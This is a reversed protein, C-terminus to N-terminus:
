DDLNDDEGVEPDPDFASVAPGEFSCDGSQYTANALISEGTLTPQTHDIDSAYDFSLGRIMELVPLPEDTYQVNYANGAELGIEDGCATNGDNLFELHTLSEMSREGDFEAHAMDEGQLILGGGQQHFETIADFSSADDMPSDPNQFWTVDFDEIDEFSIGDEPEEIVEVDEYGVLPGRDSRLNDVLFQRDEPFEGAINDDIVVAIDTEEADDTPNVWALSNQVLWPIDGGEQAGTLALLMTVSRGPDDEECTVGSYVPFQLGDRSQVQEGEQDSLADEMRNGDGDLDYVDVRFAYDGQEDVTVNACSEWSGNTRDTSAESIDGSLEGADTSSWAFELPDGDPDSATACVQVEAPCSSVFKQYELNELEPPHNISSVVDLGGREVGECQNILLIETTQGDEVSVRDRHASECDASAEGNDQLPTTQVNYCGADVLFFADAFLHQAGDAGVPTNRFREIGGPLMMDELDRTQSEQFGTEDGTNCNVGQVDFQMRAVDTDGLTDSTLAMGTSQVEGDDASDPPTPDADTNACASFVLTGLVSLVLAVIRSRM